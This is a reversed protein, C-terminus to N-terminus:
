LTAGDVPQKTLDYIDMLNHQLRIASDM